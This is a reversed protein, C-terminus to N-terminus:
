GLNLVFLFVFYAEKMSKRWKMSTLSWIWLQSTGKRSVFSTVASHSSYTTIWFTGSVMVARWTNTLYYILLIYLRPFRWGSCISYLLCINRDSHYCLMNPELWWGPLLVQEIGIARPFVKNNGETQLGLTRITGFTSKLSACIWCPSSSNYALWWHM